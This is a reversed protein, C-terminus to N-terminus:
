KIDNINIINTKCYDSIDDYIDDANGVIIIKLKESNIHKAFSEKVTQKDIKQYKTKYKEFFDSELNFIRELLLLQLPTEPNDFSLEFEGIISNITNELEEDTVQNNRIDEIIKITEILAPYIKDSNVNMVSYWMAGNLNYSMGSYAGYTYALEERLIQFLRGLVSNGLIKNAINFSFIIEIGLILELQEM